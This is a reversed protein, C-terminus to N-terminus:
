DLATTIVDGIRAFFRLNDGLALVEENTVNQDAMRRDCGRPGDTVINVDYNATLADHELDAKAVEFNRASIRFLGACDLLVPYLPQPLCPRSYLDNIAAVCRTANDRGLDLAINALGKLDKTKNTKPDNYLVRLCEPEQKGLQKCM